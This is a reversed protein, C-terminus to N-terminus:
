ERRTEERSVMVSQIVDGTFCTHLAQIIPIGGCVAAEFALTTQNSVSIHHLEDLYEALLAKNATVVPKHNSLATLVVNKAVTTGGMVEVVVDIQPDHIIEEV